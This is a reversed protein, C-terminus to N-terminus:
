KKKNKKTDDIFIFKCHFVVINKRNQLILKLYFISMRKLLEYILLM